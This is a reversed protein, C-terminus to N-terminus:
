KKIFIILIPVICFFVVFMKGLPLGFLSFNWIFLAIEVIWDWFTKDGKPTPNPHGIPPEFTGASGSSQFIVGQYVYTVEAIMPDKGDNDDPIFNKWFATPVLADSNDEYKANGISDPDLFSYLRYHDDRYIVKIKDEDYKYELNVIREM